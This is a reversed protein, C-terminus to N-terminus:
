YAAGSRVAGSRVDFMSRRSRVKDGDLRSLQLANEESNDWSHSDRVEERAAKGDSRVGGSGPSRSTRNPESWATAAEPVGAEDVSMQSTLGAILGEETSRAAAPAAAQVRAGRRAPPKM